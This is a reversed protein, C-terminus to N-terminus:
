DLELSELEGKERLKQTYRVLGLGTSAREQVELDPSTVLQELKSVLESELGAPLGHPGAWCAM